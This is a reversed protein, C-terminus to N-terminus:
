DQKDSKGMVGYLQSGPHNELTVRTGRESFSKKLLRDFYYAM